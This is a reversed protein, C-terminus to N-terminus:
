PMSRDANKQSNARQVFFVRAGISNLLLRNQQSVDSHGNSTNGPLSTYPGSSQLEPTLAQSFSHSVRLANDAAPTCVVTGRHHPHKEVYISLGMVTQSTSKTKSSSGESGRSGIESEETAEWEMDGEGIGSNTVEPREESYESTHSRRKERSSSLSRGSSSYEPGNPPLDRKQEHVSEPTPKPSASLQGGAGDFVDATQSSIEDATVANLEPSHQQM